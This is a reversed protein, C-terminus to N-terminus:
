SVKVDKDESRDSRKNLITFCGGGSQKFYAPLETVSTGGRARVRSLYVTVWIVHVKVLERLAHSFVCRRTFLGM